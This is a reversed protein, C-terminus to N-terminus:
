RDTGVIYYFNFIEAENEVQPFSIATHLLTNQTYKSNSRGEGGVFYGKPIGAGILIPFCQM